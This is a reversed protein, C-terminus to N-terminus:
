ESPTITIKKMASITASYTQLGNATGAEGYASVFGTFSRVRDGTMGRAYKFEKPEKSLHWDELDNGSVNAAKEATPYEKVIGNLTFAPIPDNGSILIENGGYCNAELQELESSMNIDTACKIVVFNDDDAKDVAMTTENGRVTSVTRATPM